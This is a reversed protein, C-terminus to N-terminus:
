VRPGTIPPVTPTHVMSGLEKAPNLGVFVVNISSLAGGFHPQDVAGAIAVPEVGVGTSEVFYFAGDM